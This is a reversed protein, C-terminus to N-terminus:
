LSCRRCVRRKLRGRKRQQSPLPLISPPSIVVSVSLDMRTLKSKPNTMVNDIDIDESDGNAGSARTHQPEVPQPQPEEAAQPKRSRASRRRPESMVNTASQTSRTAITACRACRHSADTQPAKLTRPIHIPDSILYRAPPIILYLPPRSTALAVLQASWTSNICRVHVFLLM